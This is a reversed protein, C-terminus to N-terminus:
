GMLGVNNGLVDLRNKALPANGSMKITSLDALHLPFCEKRTQILLSFIKSIRSAQGECREAIQVVANEPPGAKHASIWSGSLM